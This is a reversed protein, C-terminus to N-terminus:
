GRSRRLQALDIVEHVLNQARKLYSETVITGRDGEIHFDDRAVNVTTPVVLGRMGRVSHYLANIVNASTGAGGYSFLGVPRGDFYSGDAGHMIHVADLINKIAGTITGHYNPSNIVFGDAAKIQEILWHLNAPQQELPLDENYVPLDLARADAFVTEAGQEEALDLVFRTLMRNRSVGRVSGGIGLIRVRDTSTFTETLTM